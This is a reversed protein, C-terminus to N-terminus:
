FDHSYFSGFHGECVIQIKPDILFMPDKCRSGYIVRTKFKLIVLEFKKVNADNYTMKSFIMISKTQGELNQILMTELKEPVQLSRLYFRFCRKVLIQLSLCLTKYKRFYGM